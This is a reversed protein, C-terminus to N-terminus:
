TEGQILDFDITFVIDNNKREARDHFHQHQLYLYKLDDRDNCPQRVCSAM